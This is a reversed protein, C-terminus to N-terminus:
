PFAEKLFFKLLGLNRHRGMYLFTSSNYGEPRNNNAIIKQHEVVHGLLFFFFKKKM